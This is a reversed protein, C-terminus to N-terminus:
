QKNIKISEQHTDDSYKIFYVGSAIDGLSIDLKDSDLKASRIVKGTVDTVVVAANDSMTGNVKVIVMNSVPNPYADISFASFAGKVTATVVKSFGYEGNLDVLKVRYYNVGTAPTEDFYTYSSAEGKANLTAIGTFKKGDVSRQLEYKAGTAETSSAWDVKNRTGANVASIDSIKVTLPFQNGSAVTYPSFDTVNTATAYYPSLGGALPAVQTSDFLSEWIAGDYHAVYVHGNDFNNIGQTVFYNPSMTVDSGGTVAETIFWTANVVPFTVSNTSTSGDGDQYVADEVRVSFDDSVGYNRFGLANYNANGVHFTVSDAADMTIGTVVGTGNTIIYSATNGGVTSQPAGLTLNYNDLQINGNTLTLINDVTANGDLIKIGGGNVELDLYMGSPINQTGPGSLILKGSQLDFTGNNSITSNLRLEYGLNVVLSASPDITLTNGLATPFNMVIPDNAVNPIMVDTTILPVANCSWNGPNNWDNNVNGSWINGSTVNLTAGNDSTDPIGCQGLVVARYVNGNLGTVDNITLTPSTAGSYNGGNPVMVGNELWMYTLGLGTATVSFTASTGNCQLSTSAPDTVTAPAGITVTATSSYDVSLAACGSNDSLGTFSYTENVTPNTTFTYTNAVQGSISTPTTGDTYTFDWPGTGTLTVTYTVPAGSCVSSASAAITASPSPNVTLAATGPTTAPLSVCGQADVISDIAYIYSGTSPNVTISDLASGTTFNGTTTGNNYYIVSPMTYANTSVYVTDSNGNCIVGDFIGTIQATPRPTAQVRITDTANVTCSTGQISQISYTYSGTALAPTTYSGNGFADTLITQTTTGNFFTVVTNGTGAVNITAPTGACVSDAALTFNSVPAPNVILTASVSGCNPTTATYVYSGVAIPTVTINANAISPSTAGAPLGASISPSASWAVTQVPTGSLLVDDIAWWMDYGATYVFRFQFNSEGIYANLDITETAWASSSGESTGTYSAVQTWSTGDTTVEVVGESANMAKFYQSFGLSLTSFNNTNITPSIMETQVTAGVGASNANTMIFQTATPANHTETNYVYGNPRLTWAANAPTGGTTNNVLTFGGTGFNFNESFVGVPSGGIPVTVSFPQDNTLCIASSLPSIVPKAVAVVVLSSTNSLMSNTCTTILRYDTTDTIAPASYNNPNTLVGSVPAWSNANHASAEWVYTYGTETGGGVFNLEPTGGACNLFVPTTTTAAGANPIGTCLQADAGFSLLGIMITGVLKKMLPLNIKKM